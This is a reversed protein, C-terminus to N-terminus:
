SPTNSPTPSRELDMVWFGFSVKSFVASGVTPYKGVGAKAGGKKAAVAAQPLGAVKLMAAGVLQMSAYIVALKRLMNPFNAYVADPFLKTAPDLALSDPNALSSGVLNFLFGGSGFGGLICGSVLGRRSPFHKWGAVIPATYALGVGAITDAVLLFRPTLLLSM